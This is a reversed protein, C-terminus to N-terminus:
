RDKLQTVIADVAAHLTTILTVLILTIVIALGEDGLAMSAVVGTLVASVLAAILPVLSV